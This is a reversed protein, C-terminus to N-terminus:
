GSGQGFGVAAFGTFLQAALIKTALSDCTGSNSPRSVTGVLTIPIRVLSRVVEEFEYANLYLCLGAGKEMYCEHGPCTARIAFSWSAPAHHLWTVKCKTCEFKLVIKKTTKAQATRNECYLIRSWSLLGKGGRM